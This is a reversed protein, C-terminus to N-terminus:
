SELSRQAEGSSIVSNRPPCWEHSVPAVQQSPNAGQLTDGVLLAGTTLAFSLCFVMVYAAM